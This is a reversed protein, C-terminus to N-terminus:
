VVEGIAFKERIEKIRIKQDKKPEKDLFVVLGKEANRSSTAVWDQFFPRFYVRTFIKNNNGMFVVIDEHQKSSVLDGIKLEPRVEQKNKILKKEKDEPFKDKLNELDEFSNLKKM